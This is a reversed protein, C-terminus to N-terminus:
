TSKEGLLLKTKHLFQTPGLPKTLGDVINDDTPVKLFTINKLDVHNILFNLRVLFHKVRKHNGSFESALTILSANDVNLATPEDQPFGIEGLLMRFWLADKTAEVAAYLEAETSSLAVNSQKASRSYFLGSTSGVFTLGYGSHSAGDPHIAYSADVWLILRLPSATGPRLTIGHTRTAYLFALVRLLASWDKETARQARMAMKGVAYAIDSRTRLLYIMGGLLEMFLHYDCPPSDEQFAECFATTMPVTPFRSLKAIHPHKNFLKQLLGPQSLFRSGDSRLDIHLGLFHEVDHSVTVVYAKEMM